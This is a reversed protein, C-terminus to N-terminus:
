TKCNDSDGFSALERSFVAGEETKGTKRNIRYLHAEQGDFLFFMSDKWILEERKIRQKDEQNAYEITLEYKYVEGDIMLSFGIKQDQRKDWTTLSSRNFIDEVDQGRMLRQVSRLADLVSTKGSGNDGLWLQFGEPKIRFNTLCRFNDIYIKNMM